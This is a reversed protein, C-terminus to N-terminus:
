DDHSSNMYYRHSYSFHDEYIRLENELDKQCSLCIWEKTDENLCLRECPELCVECETPPCNIDDKLNQEKKKKRM